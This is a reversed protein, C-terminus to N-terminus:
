CQWFGHGVRFGLGKVEFEFGQGSHGLGQVRSRRPLSASLSVRLGLIVYGLGQCM